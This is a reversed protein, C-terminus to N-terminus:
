VDTGRIIVRFVKEGGSETVEDKARGETVTRRFVLPLAALFGENGGNESVEISINYLNYLGPEKILLAFGTEQPGKKASFIVIKGDKQKIRFAGLDAAQVAGSCFRRVTSRKVPKTDCSSNAGLRKRPLKLLPSASSSSFINLGHFVAEERVILPQAFFNEANTALGGTEQAWVVRSQIEGALFDATLAQTQAM